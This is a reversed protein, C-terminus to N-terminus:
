RSQWPKGASGSIRAPAGTVVGTIETGPRVAFTPLTFHLTNNTLTGAIPRVLANPGIAIRYTLAPDLAFPCWVAVTSGPKMIVPGSGKFSASFIFDAATGRTPSMERATPARTSFLSLASFPADTNLHIAVDYGDAETGQPLGANISMAQREAASVTVSNIECPVPITPLLLSGAPILRKSRNYAAQAKAVERNHQAATLALGQPVGFQSRLQIAYPGVDSVASSGCPFDPEISGPSRSWAFGQDYPYREYLIREWWRGNRQRLILIGHENLDDWTLLADHGDTITDALALYEVPISALNLHAALLARADHRIQRIAAPPGHDDARSTAQAALLCALVIAAITRFRCHSGLAIAM